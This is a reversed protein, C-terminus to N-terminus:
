KAMGALADKAPRGVIHFAGTENGMDMFDLNWVFAVGVYGWTKMMQYAKVLWAAQQEPTIFKEYDYGPKPAPDVGWGFETPWIQKNGDGNAVMIQRYSEMTGRFYFSRHGQFQGTPNPTGPAADAPNAFGSPHAGIADSYDKLGNAYLQQLFAVDDIATENTVGTPTPAGSVVVVSPCKQKIAIYSKKLMDMYLAASIPKGHWETLLNFENWVEIAGLGRSCYTAAMGGIFDAADQMNDPPGSGGAGGDKRSWRPACVISFMVKIGKAQAAAMLRDTQSFDAVGKSQSEIDCWRVQIKAWKFGMSNLIDMESNNDSNTWNLQAGYNFLNAGRFNSAVAAPQKAAPPAAPQQSAASPQGATPPKAAVAPAKTPVATPVVVAAVQVVTPGSSGALTKGDDFSLVAEVQASGGQSPATWTFKPDTIASKGVNQGNVRWMIAPSAQYKPAQTQRYQKLAEWARSDVGDNIIDRLAVGRLNYELALAIKKSVSDANELVVTHAQQRDDNYTFVYVGSPADYKLGTQRLKPLDFTAQAGPEVTSSTNLPGMLKLANSFSIPAYSTGFEDRGSASFTLEIKYRDVQGVAWLLYNEVLPPNGAYADRAMPLPIKVIDAYSGLAAWDFAGTDWTDASKATPMAVTVSLLKDKAHLADALEHVFSTFDGRNDATIGQYDINLGPYLKEVALDVLAQVHQKRTDANTVMADTLDSRLQDGLVNGITPLVQYPSNAGAEPVSPVNGAIGGADAITLGLPNVEALLSAAPAPLTSKASLDASIAPTQAQTQAVVVGDPLAGSLYTELRLLGPDESDPYIQFPLKTWKKGTYGYVDLTALPDAGEPVPISLVALSPMQGQLSPQYLPSKVDLVAPLSKAMASNMFVDRPQTTLKVSVGNKISGAPISFLTGDKAAVGGGDSPSVGTFGAGFLRQPLALPPLVLAFLVLLPIVLLNIFWGGPRSEM